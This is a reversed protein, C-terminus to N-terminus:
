ADSQRWDCIPPCTSDYLGSPAKMILTNYLVDFVEGRYAKISMIKFTATFSPGILTLLWAFEAFWDCPMYQFIMKSIDYYIPLVVTVFPTLAEIWLNITIEGHFRRQELSMMSQLNRFEYQVAISMIIIAVYAFTVIPTAGYLAYSILHQVNCSVYRGYTANLLFHDSVLKAHTEPVEIHTLFQYSIIGCYSIVIGWGVLACLFLQKSSLTINRCVILFRYLFIVFSNAVTSYLIFTVWNCGMMTWSYPLPGFIGESICFYTGNVVTFTPVFVLMSASFVMELVCTFIFVNKFNKMAPTSKKIILYLLICNFIVGIPSLYPTLHRKWDRFRFLLSM